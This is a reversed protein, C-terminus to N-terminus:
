YGMDRNILYVSLNGGIMQKELIVTARCIRQPFSCDTCVGTHRCPTDLNLRNTNQPCAERKIRDIAEETNKVVKNRGCILIVRDHGFLISSVRNGTGDINVIRGDETIGNAGSLYVDTCAAEKLLRKREAPDAAAGHYVTKYGRKEMEERLGMEALTVSGGFGVSSGKEVELFLAEAAEEPTEFYKVHFGNEKLAKIATEVSRKM